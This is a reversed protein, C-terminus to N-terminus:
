RLELRYSKGAADWTATVSEAHPIALLESAFRSVIAPLEHLSGSIARTRIHFRGGMGHDAIRVECRLGTKIM